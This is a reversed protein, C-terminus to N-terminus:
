VTDSKVLWACPEILAPDGVPNGSGVALRVWADMWRDLWHALVFCVRCCRDISRDLEGAFCSSTLDLSALTSMALLMLASTTAAM